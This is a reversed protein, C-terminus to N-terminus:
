LDRKEEKFRSFYTKQSKEDHQEPKKAKVIKQTIIPLYLIHTGVRRSEQAEIRQVGEVLRRAAIYYRDGKIDEGWNLEGGGGM